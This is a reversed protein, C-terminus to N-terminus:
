ANWKGRTYISTDDVVDSTSLDGSNASNRLTTTTATQKIQNVSLAFMWQLALRFSDTIGPTSTIEVMAEDWFKDVADAALADATIM